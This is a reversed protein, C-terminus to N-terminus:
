LLHHNLSPTKAALTVRMPELINRGSLTEVDSRLHENIGAMDTWLRERWENRGSVFERNRDGDAGLGNEFDMKNEWGVSIWADQWVGGVKKFKM